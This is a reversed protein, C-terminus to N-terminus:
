RVWFRKALPQEHGIEVYLYAAGARRAAAELANVLAGGVSMGRAEEWTAVFLVELLVPIEGRSHHRFTVSASLPETSAMTRIRRARRQEANERRRVVNGHADENEESLEASQSGLMPQSLLGWTQCGTFDLCGWQAAQVLMPFVLHLDPSFYERYMTVAAQQHQPSSVVVVVAAAAATAANVVGAGDGAGAGAGAGKEESGNNGACEDAVMGGRDPVKRPVTTGCGSVGGQRGGGGGWKKALADTAAAGEEGGAEGAKALAADREAM